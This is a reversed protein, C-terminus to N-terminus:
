TKKIGLENNLEGIRNDLEGWYDKLKEIYKTNAIVSTDEEIRKFIAELRNEEEKHKQIEEKKEQIYNGINECISGKEGSGALLNEIQQIVESVSLSDQPAHKDKGNKEKEMKELKRKEDEVHECIKKYSVFEDLVRAQYDQKLKLLSEREKYKREKEKEEKKSRLELLHWVLWGAIVLLTVAAITLCIIPIIAKANDCCPEKTQQIIIPLAEKCGCLKEVVLDGSLYITDIVNM